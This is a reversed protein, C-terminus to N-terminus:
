NFFYLSGRVESPNFSGYDPLPPLEKGDPMLAEVEEKFLKLQDANFIRAYAERISIALPEAEAATTAFSDHVMAFNDVGLGYAINTTMRMAAADLSPIFNPALGNTMRRMALVGNHERLTHQRITDGIRTKVVLSEWQYYSQKILFGDPATWKVPRRRNVCIKAGEGLWDMCLKTGSIVHDMAEWIIKALYFCLKYSDETPLGGSDKTKEEAWERVYKLTSFLRANYVRTMVPRKCCKRDVGIDLWIRAREEGDAEREKLIELVKDAVTGYLDKPESTYGCNTAVAGVEDRLLLSMIQIGSQTADQAIPLHSIFEEGVQTAKCYADFEFCFALFGWPEDAEEWDRNGLPDGAIRSIMERHDEVWQVREEFTSKSLGWCNAGHVRLWRKANDTNVATGRSFRLLAKVYDPGQPHLHYSTPYCRGRWDLQATFYIDEGLFKKALQLVKVIALREARSAANEDHIAAASRRWAKRAEENEDIDAPRPPVELDERLPLGEVPFNKEWFYDMVDLVEANIQFPTEQLRNISDYVEPMKHGELTEIYARDPTKVLTRRHLGPTHFGGEYPTTWKLPPCLNPLYVPTLIESHSHGDELWRMTRETAVVETQTKGFITTRNQVTILGTTKKFLEVCVMGVQLKDKQPWGRFSHNVKHMAHVIHRRKTSYGMYDKTRNKLERWLGPDSEALENYRAEDEIVTAVSMCTRVFRKRHSIADLIARATLAAVTDLPLKEIYDLARHRIGPKTVAEAAWERLGEALLSVANQLLWRGSPTTTELEKEEAKNRKRRYREIGLLHMEKELDEQKKEVM